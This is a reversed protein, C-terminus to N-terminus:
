ISFGFHFWYVRFVIIIYLSIDFLKKVMIMMVDKAIM